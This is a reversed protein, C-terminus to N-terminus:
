RERCEKALQRFDERNGLALDFFSGPACWERGEYGAELASSLSAVAAEPENGRLQLEARLYFFDAKDKVRGTPCDIAQQAYHRASPDDELVVLANWAAAHLTALDCPVLAIARSFAEEAGRGDEMQSRAFGLEHWALDNQPDAEVARALLPLAEDVRNNNALLTGAVALTTASARPKAALELAVRIAEDQQGVADLALLFDVAIKDDDPALERARRFAVLAEEQEASARLAAGLRLHLFISDPHRAALTRFEAVAVQRDDSELAHDARAVQGEEWRPFRERREGFERSGPGLALLAVVGACAALVIAVVLLLRKM